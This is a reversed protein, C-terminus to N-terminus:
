DVTGRRGGRNIVCGCNPCSGKINILKGKVPIVQVAGLAVVTKCRLCYAQNDDLRVARKQQREGRVWEAFLTGNVWLHGSEDRLTPAGRELWDRLTREPIQLEDAIESVKYLMPLLGPAKIRVHHPVHISSM